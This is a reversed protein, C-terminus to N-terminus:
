ITTSSREIDGIRWLFKICDCKPSKLIIPNVHSGELLLHREVPKVAMRNSWGEELFGFSMLYAKEFCCIVKATEFLCLFTFSQKPLLGDMLRSGFPDAM